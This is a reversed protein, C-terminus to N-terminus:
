RSPVMYYGDTGLRRPLINPLVTVTGQPQYRDIVTSHDTIISQIVSQNVPSGCASLKGALPRAAVTFCKM